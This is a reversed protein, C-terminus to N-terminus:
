IVVAELRGDIPVYTRGDTRVYSRVGYDGCHMIAYVWNRSLQFALFLFATLCVSEQKCYKYGRQSHVPETIM